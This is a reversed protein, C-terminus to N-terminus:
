RLDLQMGRLVTGEPVRIEARPKGARRIGWLTTSSDQTYRLMVADERPEEYLKTREPDATGLQISGDEARHYYVYQFKSNISGSGLFFRGQVGNFDNLAMLESRSQLTYPPSAMTLQGLGSAAGLGAASLSLAFILSSLVTLFTDRAGQAFLYGAILGLLIFMAIILM